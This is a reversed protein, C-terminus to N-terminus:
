GPAPKLLGSGFWTAILLAPSM